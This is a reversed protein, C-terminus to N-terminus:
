DGFTQRILEPLIEGAKGLLPWDVLSTLDTPQANIEVLKARKLRATHALGAAPYVVASTGISFFLDCNGAAAEALSMAKAPLEEGFWVVGPRRAGGCRCKPPFEQFPERDEREDGCHTCRWVWLTGHLEIVDNSGAAQHLRDVNQTILTFRHERQVLEKQLRALALHGANPKAEACKQRREDYWRSVMAPDRIFAEPTALEDPNFKAWMGTLADRFTPIGSEASIGAGTLVVVAQADRVASVLSSPLEM